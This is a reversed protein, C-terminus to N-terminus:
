CAVNTNEYFTCVYPMPATGCWLALPCNAPNNANPINAPNCGNCNNGVPGGCCDWYKFLHGKQQNEVCKICAQWFAGLQTGQPCGNAQLCNNCGAYGDCSVGSVGGWVGTITADNSHTCNQQAERRTPPESQGEQASAWKSTSVAAAGAFGVGLIACLKEGTRGLMTRRTMRESVYNALKQTHNSQRSM